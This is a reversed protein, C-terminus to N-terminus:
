RREEINERRRGRIKYEGEIKCENRGIARGCWEYKAYKNGHRDHTKIKMWRDSARLSSWFSVQVDIIPSNPSGITLNLRHYGPDAQLALKNPHELLDTLMTLEISAEQLGQM